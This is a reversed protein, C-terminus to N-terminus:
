VKPIDDTATVVYGLSMSASNNREAYNLNFKCSKDTYNIRIKTNVKLSITNYNIFLMHNRPCIGELFEISGKLENM